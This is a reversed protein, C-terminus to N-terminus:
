VERNTPLTLHTYSVAIDWMTDSDNRIYIGAPMSGSLATTLLFTDRPNTITPFTSGSPLDATIEMWNTNNTGGLQDAPATSRQADSMGTAIYLSGQYYAIDGTNYLRNNNWNHDVQSLGGGRLNLDFRAGFNIDPNAM